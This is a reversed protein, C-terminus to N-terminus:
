TYPLNNNSLPSDDVTPLKCNEVAKNNSFFVPALPSFPFPFATEDASIGGSEPRKRKKGNGTYTPAPPQHRKGNNPPTKYKAGSGVYVYLPANLATATPTPSHSSTQLLLFSLLL